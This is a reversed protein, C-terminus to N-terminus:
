QSVFCFLVFCDSVPLAMKIVNRKTKVLFQKLSGSSMYETIFIVRAKKEDRIDTWYKHLKVINPHDLQILQDLAAKIKEERVRSQKLDWNVLNVENWVVEVGEEMDM